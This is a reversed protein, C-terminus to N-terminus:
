AQAKRGALLFYALWLAGTAGGIVFRLSTSAVLQRFGGELIAAIFFMFVAGVAIRAAERGHIALNELRGYRGPFLIREALVFGAAGCFIIATIETVGHISVWGLFDVTLGRNWHLGLFAGLMLGQYIMLLVTPIGGAIGLSFALIGVTANNQFLFSALVGLMRVWGQWPAFIEDQLLDDRTSEPGRDGALGPSVLANFWAEDGLTLLFGAVLGILLCLASLLIHWRAGRVAAPFGRRFFDLAAQAIGTRPGYLIFFARFCLNELYLLLNRDLAISRAVSLSSLASRYLLPLRQLEEVTLSLLSRREVEKIFGELERWSAERGKRFESSRLVLTGAPAEASGDGSQPQLAPHDLAANM